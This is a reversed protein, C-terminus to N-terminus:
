NVQKSSQGRCQSRWQIWGAPATQFEIGAKLCLSPLWSNVAAEDQCGDLISDAEMWPSRSLAHLSSCSPSPFLCHQCHTGCFGSPFKSSFLVLLTDDNCTSNKETRYLYLVICSIPAICTQVKEFLICRINTLLTLKMYVSTDDVFCLCM